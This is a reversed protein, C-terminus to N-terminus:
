PSCLLDRVWVTVGATEIGLTDFGPLIVENLARGIAARRGGDGLFGFAEMEPDDAGVSTEIAPRVTRNLLAPLADVLGAVAGSRTRSALYAWGLRGHDLEDELLAAVASKAGPNTARALMETFCVATLTESLCCMEVVHLLTRTAGDAGDHAPLSPLGRYARPVTVGDLLRVAMQRCIEAHRVEDWAARAALALIIPECGTEALEQAVHMFAGAALHEQRAREKWSAGVHM